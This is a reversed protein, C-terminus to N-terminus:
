FEVNARLELVRPHYSPSLGGIGFGSLQAWPFQWNGNAYCYYSCGSGAGVQFSPHNFANLAEAQLSFSVRETIPVHEARSVLCRGGWEASPLQEGAPDIARM